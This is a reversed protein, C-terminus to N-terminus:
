ARAETGTHPAGHSSAYAGGRVASDTGRGAGRWLDPLRTAASASLVRWGAQRLMGVAVDHPLVGPVKATDWATTDLVVALGRGTGNRARALRRTDDETLNALVAVAMGEGGPQRMAAEAGDLGTKVRAEVVALADLLFSETEAPAVRMGEPAGALLEGDSGLLRTTYGRRCLHVGISAATSVAWEFSSSPGEGRHATLRTDLLLTAQNQWSQEERRVMLEGRRATSRWHVRRVDDGHRYERPLVDEEGSSALSRANGDGYGSWEGGLDVAPLQQVIPTVVLTDRAAFSRTLECMGFPDALRLRLPGVSFKGRLDSRVRYAVQRYGHPEIRDLVFRPRSGLVYPVHDELMLLGTPIRSVNAVRLRIQAESGAAVRGPDLARTSTVLHRTRAVVLVAVLPLAALLFGVRLLDRQGLVLACIAAAIGAALFSRGRTTLGSLATRVEARRDTAM